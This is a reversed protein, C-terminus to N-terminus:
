MLANTDYRVWVSEYRGTQSEALWNRNWSPYERTTSVRPPAIFDTRSYRDNRNARIMVPIGKSYRVQRGDLWRYDSECPNYVYDSEYHNYM